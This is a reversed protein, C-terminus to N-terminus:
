VDYKAVWDTAVKEGSKLLATEGDDYISVLPSPLEKTMTEEWVAHKGDRNREMVTMKNGQMYFICRGFPTEDGDFDFNDVNSALLDQSYFEPYYNADYLKDGILIIVPNGMVCENAPFYKRIKEKSIPTFYSDIELIDEECLSSWVIGYMETKKNYALYSYTNEGDKADKLMSGDELAYIILDPHCEPAFSM